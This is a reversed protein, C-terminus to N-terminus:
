MDSDTWYDPGTDWSEPRLTKLYVPKGASKYCFNQIEKELFKGLIASSLIRINRKRETFVKDTTPLRLSRMFSPWQGERLLNETAKQEDSRLRLIQKSVRYYVQLFPLEFILRLRLETDRSDETKTTLWIFIDKALQGLTVKDSGLWDSDRYASRLALSLISNWDQFNTFPTSYGWHRIIEPILDNALSPNQICKLIRECGYIRPRLHERMRSPMGKVMTHYELAALSIDSSVWGKQQSELLLNTLSFYRRSEQKLASL